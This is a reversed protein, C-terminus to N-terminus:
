ELMGKIEREIDPDGDFEMRGLIPIKYRLEIQDAAGCFTDPHRDSNGFVAAGRCHIANSQLFLDVIAPIVGRGDTYTMLIYDESITEMGTLIRLADPVMMRDVAKQVNGTRSAYVLKMASRRNQSFCSIEIFSYM